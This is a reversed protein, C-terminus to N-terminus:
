FAWGVALRGTVGDRRGGHGQVSVDIDLNRIPTLRVGVEGIYTAGRIKPSDYRIGTAKNTAKATGGFEYEFYAGAYPSVICGTYAVRGGARLRHSDVADFRNSEAMIDVSKATQRTWLYKASLDLSFKETLDRSYGIGAHAGLYLANLDYRPIGGIYGSARYDTDLRGLRFSGEVRFGNMFRYQGM